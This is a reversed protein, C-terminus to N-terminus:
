KNSVEKKLKEIEGQQKQMAEEQRLMHLTLEEVKKLLLSNMQGLDIQGASKVESASPVEPLHKNTQIYAKLSDASMLKYGKDFVYDPFNDTLPNATIVVQNSALKGLLRANGSSNVTFLPKWRLAESLNPLDVGITFYDDANVGGIYDDGIAVRMETQNAAKNYRSIWQPDANDDLNFYLKSGSGIVNAKTLGVSINGNVGLKVGLQAASVTDLVPANVGVIGSTSVRLGEVNNSKLILPVSTTSGIFNFNQSILSTNGTTQWYTNNAPVTCSSLLTWPQGSGSGGNNVDPTSGQSWWNAMYAYGNYKVQTGGWYVTAASWSQLTSCDTNIASTSSTTSQTTPITGATCTTGLTWSGSADGPTNGSTWYNASYIKGGYVVKSGGLYVMTASWLSLQSCNTTVPAAASCNGVITWPQGSGGGGNNTTPTSGQSWFNAHYQVGNYKALDGAVYVQTSVWTQTTSCDPTTQAYITSVHTCFLVTLFLFVQKTFKM